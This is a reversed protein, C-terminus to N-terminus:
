AAVEQSTQRAARRIAAAVDGARRCHLCLILALSCGEGHREAHDLLDLAGDGGPIAYLYTTVLTVAKNATAQGEALDAAIELIQAPSM